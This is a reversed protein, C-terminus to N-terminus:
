PGLRFNFANVEETLPEWSSEWAWISYNIGRHELLDMQDDMFLDAGPQWRMLGFETVAVPVRYSEVYDDIIGLLDDIWEKNVRDKEGDWDADFVGPYRIKLHDEQHTYIYPAYQHVAYIVKIGSLRAVSAIKNIPDIIRQCQTIDRGWLDYMGGKMIFANQMDIIMLATKQLDVELPEPEAELTVLWQNSTAFKEIM